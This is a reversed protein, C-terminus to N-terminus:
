KALFSPSASFRSPKSTIELVLRCERQGSELVVSGGCRKRWLMGFHRGQIAFNDVGIRLIGRELSRQRRCGARGSPLTGPAAVIVDVAGGGAAMAECTRLM